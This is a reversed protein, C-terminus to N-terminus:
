FDCLKAAIVRELIDDDKGEEGDCVMPITEVKRKNIVTLSGRKKCVSSLMYISHSVVVLAGEFADLAAVLSENTNLSFHNSPEDLLLVHPEDLFVVCLCLRARQGGSLSGVQQLVTNGNLGFKGLLSRAELTSKLRNGSIQILYDVCSMPFYLELSDLHHQSLMGVRLNPHCSTNGTVHVRQSAVNAKDDQNRNSTCMSYLAELFTSKGQGNPGVIAIRSTSTLQFNVNVLLEKDNSYITADEFTMLPHGMDRHLSSSLRLDVFTPNPFNFKISREEKLSEASIEEALEFDITYSAPSLFTKSSFIFCSYYDIIIDHINRPVTGARTVSREDLNKLSFQKYRKGDLRSHLKARESKKEKVASKENSHKIKEEQKVQSDVQHSIRTKMEHEHTLWSSYNGPFYTLTMNKMNIIDTCVNELFGRDHSVVVVICDKLSKLHNQLWIISSIDLHNTPEDMLLLDSEKILYHALNVRMRWGGSLENMRQGLMGNKLGLGLGKLITKHREDLAKYISKHDSEYDVAKGGTLTDHESKEMRQQVKEIKEEISSLQESLQNITQEDHVDADEIEELLNHEIEQLKELVREDSVEENEAGELIFKLVPINAYELLEQQMYQIRLTQSFGPITRRAMCRILTSKGVGNEGILGYLRGKNLKLKANVLLQKGLFALQFSDISIYSEDHFKIGRGGRSKGGWITGEKRCEEWASSHDDLTTCSDLNVGWRAVDISSSNNHSDDNSCAKTSM